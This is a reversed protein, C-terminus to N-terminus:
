SERMLIQLAIQMNSIKLIVEKSSNSSRILITM